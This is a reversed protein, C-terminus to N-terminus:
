LSPMSQQPHRCQNHCGEGGEGGGGRRGERGGAGDWSIKAKAIAPVFSKDKPSKRKKKKEPHKIKNKPPHSTFGKKKKKKSREM